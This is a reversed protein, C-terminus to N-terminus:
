QDRRPHLAGADATVPAFQGGLLRADADAQSESAFPRIRYNSPGQRLGGRRVVTVLGARELRRLARRVSRGDIGARRAMDAQSTRALGDAKTDRYLVLWVAVDARPLGRLTADIFANLAAFRGGAKRKPRGPKGKAREVIGAQEVAAPPLMPPLVSCGPLMPKGNDRSM